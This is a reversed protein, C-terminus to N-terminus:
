TKLYMAEECLTWLSGLGVATGEMHSESPVIDGAEFNSTTKFVCMIDRDGIEEHCVKLLEANFRFM